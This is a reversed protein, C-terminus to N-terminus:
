RRNLLRGAIAPHIHKAFRKLPARYSKILGGLFFDIDKLYCYVGDTWGITWIKIPKSKMSKGTKDFYVERGAWRFNMFGKFRHDRCDVVHKHGRMYVVIKVVQDWAVQRWNKVRSDEVGGNALYFEEWRDRYKSDLHLKKM